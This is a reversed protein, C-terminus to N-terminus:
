INWSSNPYIRDELRVQQADLSKRASPRGVIAGKGEDGGPNKLSTADFRPAKKWKYEFPNFQDRITNLAESRNVRKDKNTGNQANQKKQKKSEQPRLIGQERLSAKLRKLQSPPMAPHPINHARLKRNGPPNEKIMKESIPTREGLHGIFLRHAEASDKGQRFRSGGPQVFWSRPRIYNSLIVASEGAACSLSKSRPSPIVAHAARPNIRWKSTEYRSAAM